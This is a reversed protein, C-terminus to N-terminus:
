REARGHATIGQGTRDQRTQMDTMTQADSKSGTTPGNKEHEGSGASSDEHNLNLKVLSRLSPSSRSSITAKSETIKKVASSGGMM